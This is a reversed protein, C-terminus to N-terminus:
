KRYYDFTYKANGKKKKDKEEIVGGECIWALL